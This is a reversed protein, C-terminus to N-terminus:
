PPGSVSTQALCALLKSLVGTGRNYQRGRRGVQLVLAVGMRLM